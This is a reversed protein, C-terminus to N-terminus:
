PLKALERKLAAVDSEKRAIVSKMEAVRDLYRQYNKEDGRREPEGNNYEAQLAALSQEEKKLEAVLIQKRDSDRSRQEAPDVRAGSSASASAGAPPAVVGPGPTPGRRLPPGTIVTIPSSDLPTCNREKAEKPSIADTYLVPPGPCKYVTSAVAPGSPLLLLGAGAAAVIRCGWSMRRHM